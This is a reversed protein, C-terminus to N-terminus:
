TVFTESCNVTVMKLTTLPSNSFEELCFVAEFRQYCIAFSRLTVDRFVASKISLERFVEFGDTQLRWVGGYKGVSGGLHGTIVEVLLVQHCVVAPHIPICLLTFWRSDDNLGETCGENQPRMNCVLTNEKHSNDVDGETTWKIKFTKPTNAYYLGVLHM